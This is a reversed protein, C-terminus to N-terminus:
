NEKLGDFLADLILPTRWELRTRDFISYTLEPFNKSDAINNDWILCKIGRKKTESIFYQCYGAREEENAKDITGFETIMLRINKKKAAQSM